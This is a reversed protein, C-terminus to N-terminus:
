RVAPAGGAGRSPPTAGPPAPLLKTLPPGQDPPTLFREPLGLVPITSGDDITFLYSPVLLAGKGDAWPAYMLALQVGTVTRVVPAPRPCGANPACAIAPEIQPQNQLQDFAAPVGILPYEDGQEPRALFGSASEIVGNVGVSASWTWGIVVRGDVRPSASVYWSSFGDDVRVIAGALDVGTRALADRGIREAEARTPLGAPRQPPTCTMPPSEAPGSSIVACGSSVSGSTGSGYRWPQGPVPEVIVKAPEVGLARAISAVRPPQDVDKLAMARASAPLVPLPSALRYEVRGPYVPGGPNVASSGAATANGVALAPLRPPAASKGSRDSRGNAGNAVLAAGAAAGVFGVLVLWLVVRKTM